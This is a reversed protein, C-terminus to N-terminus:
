LGIGISLFHESLFLDGGNQKEYRSCRTIYIMAIKFQWFRYAESENSKKNGDTDQKQIM